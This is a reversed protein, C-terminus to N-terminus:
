IFDMYQLLALLESAPIRRRTAIYSPKTIGRFQKKYRYIGKFNFLNNGYKYLFKLSHHTLKDHRMSAKANNIEPSLGLSLFDKGEKKFKNIAQLIMYAVHGYPAKASARMIDTCYGTVRGEKFIPSFFIFGQLNNYADISYFKRVFPEDEYIPKRILFSLPKKFTKRALWDSSLHELDKPFIGFWNMLQAQTLEYVKAKKLGRRLSARLRGKQPDNELFYNQINLFHEIGMQTVKYGFSDHLVQAVAEGIQVFAPNNLDKIFLELFEVLHDDPCLPRGLVFNYGSYSGYPAFGVDRKHWYRLNSQLASYSVSNTGYQIIYPLFSSLSSEM